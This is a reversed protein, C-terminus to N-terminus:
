QDMVKKMGSEFGVKEAFEEWRLKVEKDM